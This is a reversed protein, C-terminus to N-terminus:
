EGIMNNEKLLLYYGKMRKQYLTHANDSTMVGISDDIKEKNEYLTILAHPYDMYRYLDWYAAFKDAEICPIFSFSKRIQNYIMVDEDMNRIFDYAKEILEEPIYNYIDDM